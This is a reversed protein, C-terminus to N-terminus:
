EIVLTAGEPFTGLAEVITGGSVEEAGYPCVDDDCTCDDEDGQPCTEHVYVRVGFEMGNEISQLVSCSESPTEGPNEACIQETCAEPRDVAAWYGGNWEVEASQGPNIILGPSTGNGCLNGCQDCATYFARPHDHVVVADDVLIEFPEQGCFGEAVIFRPEASDNRITIAVADGLADNEPLDCVDADGGSSSSDEGAPEDDDADTDAGPESAETESGPDAATTTGTGGANGDPTPGEPDSCGPLLLSALALSTLAHRIAM